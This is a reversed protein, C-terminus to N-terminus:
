GQKAPPKVKVKVNSELKTLVNEEDVNALQSPRHRHFFSVRGQRLFSGHALEAPRAVVEFDLTRIILRRVLRRQQRPRSDSSRSEIQRTRTNDAMAM